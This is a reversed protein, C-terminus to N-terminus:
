KVYYVLEENRYVRFNKQRYSEKLLIVVIVVLIVVVVKYVVISLGRFLFFVPKDFFYELLLFFICIIRNKSRYFLIKDLSSSGVKFIIRVFLRRFRSRTLKLPRAYLKNSKAFPVRCVKCHSITFSFPHAAGGLSCIAEIYVLLVVRCDVLTM